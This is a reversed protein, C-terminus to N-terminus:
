EDIVIEFGLIEALDNTIKQPDDQNEELMKKIADKKEKDLRALEEVSKEEIKSIIENYRKRAIERRHKELEHSRNIADIEKQHDENIRDIIESAKQSDRTLIWLLVPISAGVLLQWYKKCWVWMKKFYKKVALWTLM